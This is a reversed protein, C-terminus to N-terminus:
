EEFFEVYYRILDSLTIIGVTKSGEKVVLHRVGNTKMIERADTVSQDSEVTILNQRMITRVLTKEIDLGKAIAERSIRKESVIGVYDSGETVLLAGVGKEMMAQSAERLTADAAVSLIDGQMYEFVNTKKPRDSM